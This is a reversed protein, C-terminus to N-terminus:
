FATPPNGIHQTTTTTFSKSKGSSYNTESIGSPSWINIRTERSLLVLAMRKFLEHIEHILKLLLKVIEKYSKNM